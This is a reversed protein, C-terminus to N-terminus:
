DGAREKSTKSKPPEQEFMFAANRLLKRIPLHQPCLEECKGCRTCQKAQNEPAIHNWYKTKVDNSMNNIYFENVLGFITPIDVGNPCPQCYKCSSCDIFGLKKYERAVQNILDLEKRALTNPASQEATKVNEKVQQMDSMGSLAVSVEPQNWVWLLAWEAQTRKVETKEFIDRIPKAPRLALRGGAVPEMVVVALGKSAAYRLGAQGAQCEEDAYNYQIQCLTWGKYSDIIDKFATYSDHFSFGLHKFKGERIKQEAWGTVDLAKLKEWRGKNLGHLLYFDINTNLRNLQEELYKDMDQQSNILWSPMKTALKVKKRYGNELAKGVLAESKGQHYPYATDVYNVGHDFAYRLMRLAEPEDISGHDDGITPLRMAGFGLASVQWNLKGFSRYKM